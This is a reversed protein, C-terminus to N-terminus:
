QLDELIGFKYMLYAGGGLTILYGIGLEKFFESKMGLVGLLNMINVFCGGFTAEGEMARYLAISYNLRTALYVSILVIVASIILGPKSIGKGLLVYGGFAGLCLFVGGVFAIRGFAGILCWLGIGLAAGILAGITGSIKNDDDDIFM